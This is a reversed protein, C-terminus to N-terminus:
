GGSERLDSASTNSHSDTFFAALHFTRDNQLKVTFAKRVEIKSSDCFGLVFIKNLGDRGVEAANGEDVINGYSDDEAVYLFAREATEIVTVVHTDRVDNAGPTFTSKPNEGCQVRPVDDRRKLTVDATLSQAVKQHYRALSDLLWGM